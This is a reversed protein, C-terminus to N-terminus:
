SLLFSVNAKNEDEYKAVLQCFGRKEGIQNKEKWKNNGKKNEYTSVNEYGTQDWFTNLITIQFYM